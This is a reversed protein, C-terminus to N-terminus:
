RDSGFGLQSGARARLEFFDCSIDGLKGSDELYMPIIFHYSYISNYYKWFIIEEM